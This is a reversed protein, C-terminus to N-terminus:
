TFERRRGREVMLADYEEYLTRDTNTKPLHLGLVRASLLGTLAVVRDRENYRNASRLNNLSRKITETLRSEIRSPVSPIEFTDPLADVPLNAAAVGGGALLLALLVLMLVRARICLAVLRSLM